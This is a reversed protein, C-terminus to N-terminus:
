PLSDDERTKENTQRDTMYWGHSQIKLISEYTEILPNYDTRYKNININFNQSKAQSFEMLDPEQTKKIHGLM